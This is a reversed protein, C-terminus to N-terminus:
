IGTFQSAPPLHDMFEQLAEHQDMAWGSSELQNVGSCWTGVYEQVCSPICVTTRLVKKLYVTLTWDGGGFHHLLMSYILHATTLCSICAGTNPLLLHASPLLRGFLVSLAAGDRRCWLHYSRLHLICTTILLIHLFM